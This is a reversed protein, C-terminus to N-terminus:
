NDYLGSGFCLDIRFFADVGVSLSGRCSWRDSQANTAAVQRVSGKVKASFSRRLNRLNCSGRKGCAANSSESGAMVVDPDPRVMGDVVQWRRNPLSSLVEPGVLQTVPFFLDRKDDIEMM